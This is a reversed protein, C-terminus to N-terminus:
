SWAQGHRRRCRSGCRNPGRRRRGRARSSSASGGACRRHHRHRRRSVARVRRLRNAALAKLCHRELPCNWVNSIQRITGLKTMWPRLLLSAGDRLGSSGHRSDVPLVGSCFKAGNRRKLTAAHIRPDAGRRNAGQEARSHRLSPANRSIALARPWSIWSRGFRWDPLSPFFNDLAAVSPNGTACLTLILRM